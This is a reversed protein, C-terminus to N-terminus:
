VIVGNDNKCAPLSGSWIRSILGQMSDAYVSLEMCMLEAELEGKLAPVFPVAECLAALCQRVVTPKQEHLLRRMAPFARLREFAEFDGYYADSQRSARCIECTLEHARKHDKGSLIAFPEQEM